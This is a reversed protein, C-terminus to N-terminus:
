GNKKKLKNTEPLYHELVQIFDAYKEDDPVEINQERGMKLLISTFLLTAQELRQFYQAYLGWIRNRGATSDLDFWDQRSLHHVFFNREEVLKTLWVDIEDDISVKERFDKLVRGLSRKDKKFLSEASLGARDSFVLKLSKELLMEFHQTLFLLEGTFVILSERTDEPDDPPSSPM